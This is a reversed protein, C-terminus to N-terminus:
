GRIWVGVLYFAGAVAGYLAWTKARDIGHSAPGWVIDVFTGALAMLGAGALIVNISELLTLRYAALRLM